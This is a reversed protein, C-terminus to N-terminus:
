ELPDNVISDIGTVTENMEGFEEQLESLALTHNNAVTELATLRARIDEFEPHLSFGTTDEALVIPEVTWTKAVRERVLLSVSVKLEGAKKCAEPVTITYLNSVRVSSKAAGNEFRVIAASLLYDSTFKLSVPTDKALLFPERNSLRGYSNKLAIEITM